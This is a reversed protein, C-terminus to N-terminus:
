KEHFGEREGQLEGNQVDRCRFCKASHLDDIFHRIEDIKTHTGAMGDDALQIAGQESACTQVQQTLTQPAATQTSCAVM